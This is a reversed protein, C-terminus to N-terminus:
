RRKEYGKIVKKIKNYKIIEMRAQRKEEDTLISKSKLYKFMALHKEASQKLKEQINSSIKFKREYKKRENKYRYFNNIAEIPQNFRQEIVNKDCAKYRLEDFCVEYSAVEADGLFVIYIDEINNLTELLTFEKKLTHYESITMKHPLGLDENSKIVNKKFELLSIM